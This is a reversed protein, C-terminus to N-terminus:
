ARPPRGRRKPAVEPAVAPEPAVNELELPPTVYELQEIVTFHGCKKNAWRDAFGRFAVAVAKQTGITQSSHESNTLTNSIRRIQEELLDTKEEYYETKCEQCSM